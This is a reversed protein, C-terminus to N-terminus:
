GDIWVRLTMALYCITWIAILWFPSTPKPPVLKLTILDDDETAVVSGKVIITKSKKNSIAM